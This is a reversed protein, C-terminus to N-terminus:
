QEREAHRRNIRRIRRDAARQGFLKWLFAKRRTKYAAGILGVDETTGDARIVTAFVQVNHAQSFDPIAGVDSLDTIEAVGDVAEAHVAYPESM